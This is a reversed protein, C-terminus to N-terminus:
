MQVAEDGESNGHCRIVSCLGDRRVCMFGNM